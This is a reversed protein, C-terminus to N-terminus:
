GVGTACGLFGLATTRFDMSMQIDKQGLGNLDEIYPEFETRYSWDSLGPSKGM